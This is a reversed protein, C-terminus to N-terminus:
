SGEDTDKYQDLYDDPEEDEPSVKDLYDSYEKIFKDKENDPLKSILGMTLRLMDDPTYEPHYREFINVYWGIEEITKMTQGM